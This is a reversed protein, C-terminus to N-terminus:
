LVRPLKRRLVQLALIFSTVCLAIGGCLLTLVVIDWAPRHKYLWPFNLSHLGHYLWRNRRSSANYGQVIEATKPDIYYSSRQSDDLQVFVVPLPLRGRRDLYYAEYDTVLRVQLLAAPLAATRLAQAIQESPFETQPEGQLPVIRTQNGAGTALYFPEGDFSDFQLQRTGFGPGLEALAEQPSKRAFAELAPTDGRLGQEMTADIEESSGEQLRPFPDMSLMGSFAWTCACVGFVLGLIAHWRKQGLYPISSATGAPRYRKRPSYTWVGVVIGIAATLAGIGSAWIVLRTWQESHKRLQTFYLWHPIAGFYAGMRSARTTCQVVAGTVMSVYVQEGDPWTYKRMPRLSAFEESVTWQDAVTINESTAQGASGGTWAAAVRMAMEPTIKGRVEGDDAYVMRAGGGVSFQFAPRGDFTGLAVADPSGSEHLQAYAQSPSLRIKFADLAPARGLRDAPSVGPYDWYMMVVGSSFWTLFLLCLSVGIWRHVFILAQKLQAARAAM